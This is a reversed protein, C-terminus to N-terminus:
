PEGPYTDVVVDASQGPRIHTLQTEKFNAEVWTENTEVVSLVSNGSSAYQGVNLKGVQSVTGQADSKVTTYSLNLEAQERAALAKKVVPYSDIPQDPHGGLAAAASNLDENAVKVNDESTQEALRATDVDAPTSFGKKALDEARTLERQRIAVTRQAANLKAMAVSYAAKMQAVTQRADALAADAQDVAIELPAPNIRFLVDGPKIAQNEKVDVEVIRGSVDPAVLLIAQHVYANDTEIDRGGTLYSCGGGLVLLLPVAGILSIRRANGGLLKRQPEAADETAAEVETRINM